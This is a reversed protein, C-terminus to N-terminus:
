TATNAELSTYYTDFPKPEAICLDKLLYATEVQRVVSRKDVGVSADVLVEDRQHLLAPDLIGLKPEVEVADSDEEGAEAFM